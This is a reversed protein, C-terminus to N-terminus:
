KNQRRFAAPRCGQVKEFRASFHHADYFGLEQAIEEVTKDTSALMVCSLRIKSDLLYQYPTMGYAAKFTRIIHETSQFTIAAIDALRVNKTVHCDLYQRVIDPTQMEERPKPQRTSLFQVLEFFLRSTEMKYVTPDDITQAIKQMRSLLSFTDANHFVVTQRLGYITLLQEALEGTFNIWQCEWHDANYSYYNQDQGQLLLFTDGPGAAYAVGDVNIVGAGSIVYQLCFVDSRVRTHHMPRTASSRGCQTMWFPHPDNTLPANYLTADNTPKLRFRM